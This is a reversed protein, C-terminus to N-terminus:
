MRLSSRQSSREREKVVDDSFTESYELTAKVYHAGMEVLSRRIAEESFTIGKKEFYIRLETCTWTSSNIGYKGPDNEEILRKIEKKENGGLSPPRGSRERDTVNKESNWREAWRYVTYEDVSFFIAVKSVSEGTSLVYLARLREKKLPDRSEMALSNLIGSDSEPIIGMETLLPYPM